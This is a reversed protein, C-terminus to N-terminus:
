NASTQGRATELFSEHLCAEGWTRGTCLEERLNRVTYYQHQINNHLLRIDSLKGKHILLRINQEPRRSPGKKLKLTM